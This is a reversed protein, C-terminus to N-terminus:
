DDHSMLKRKSHERVIALAEAPIDSVLKMKVEEPAKGMFQDAVYEARLKKVIGVWLPSITKIFEARAEAQTLLKQKTKEGLGRKGIKPSLIAKKRADALQQPNVM